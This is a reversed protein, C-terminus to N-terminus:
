FYSTFLSGAFLWAAICPVREYWPVSRTTFHREAAAM